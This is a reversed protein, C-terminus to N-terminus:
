PDYGHIARDRMGVINRWPVHAHQKRFTPSLRKTAEGIIAIQYLEASQKEADAFFAERDVGRLFDAILRAAQAIDLLTADDRYM